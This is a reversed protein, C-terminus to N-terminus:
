GLKLRRIMFRFDSKLINYDRMQMNKKTLFMASSMNFLLSDKGTYTVMRLLSARRIPTPSEVNYGFQRMIKPIKIELMEMM